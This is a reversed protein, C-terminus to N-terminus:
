GSTGSGAPQLKGSCFVGRKLLLQDDGAFTHANPGSFSNWAGPQGNAIAQGLGTGDGNYTASCDIYYINQAGAHVGSFILLSIVAPLAFRIRSLAPM